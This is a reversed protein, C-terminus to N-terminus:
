VIRGVIYEGRSNVARFDGNDREYLSGPAIVKGVKMFSSLKVKKGCYKASCSEDVQMVINIDYFSVPKETM